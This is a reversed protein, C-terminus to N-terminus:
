VLHPGQYKPKKGIPDFVGFLLLGALFGGIHAQWAISGGGGVVAGGLLGFVLNIGFWIALFTLVQRNALAQRLPVAPSMYAAKDKRRFAGLPGDAAFVFRIAGAMHGSIAASAGVTPVSDGWNTLLHAAAGMIACIASFLLFRVAGFRWAVATGFIAMWLMNMMLHMVGGHLFAYSLFTWIDAGFGGPFTVLSQETAVYRLPIFAFLVLVDLDLSPSLLLSRIMHIAIMIGALVTISLPLNIAPQSPKPTM